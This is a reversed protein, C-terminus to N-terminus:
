LLWRATDHELSYIQTINMTLVTNSPKPIFGHGVTGTYACLIFHTDDIKVLNILVMIQIM